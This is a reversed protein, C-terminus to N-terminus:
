RPLLLVSRIHIVYIESTASVYGDKSTVPLLPDVAARHAIKLHDDARGKIDSGTQESQVCMHTCIM